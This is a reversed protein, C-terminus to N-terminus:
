QEEAMRVILSHVQEPDFKAIWELTVAGPPIDREPISEGSMLIVLRVDDDALARRALTLGKQPDGELRYDCLLVDPPDDDLETMADEFTRVVARAAYGKDRLAAVTAQNYGHDDVIMLSAWESAPAGDAIMIQPPQVAHLQLEALKDGFNRQLDSTLMGLLPIVLAILSQANETNGAAIGNVADHMLTRVTAEVHCHKSIVEHLATIDLFQKASDLTVDLDDLMFPIQLYYSGPVEEDVISHSASVVHRMDYGVFLIPCQLKHDRRLSFAIELGDDNYDAPSKVLIIALRIHRPLKPNGILRSQLETVDQVYLFQNLTLKHDFQTITLSLASAVAEDPFHMVCINDAFHIPVVEMTENSVKRSTEIM